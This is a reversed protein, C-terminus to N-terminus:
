NKMDTSGSINFVKINGSARGERITMQVDYISLNLRKAKLHPYTSQINGSGSVSNLDITSPTGDPGVCTIQIAM